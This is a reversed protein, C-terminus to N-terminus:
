KITDNINFQAYEGSPVRLWVIAWQENRFQRVQLYKNKTKVDQKKDVVVGGKFKYVTDINPSCCVFM